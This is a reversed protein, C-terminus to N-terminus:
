ERVDPDTALIRTVAARLAPIDREVTAWVVDLDVDFYRHNVLDRMGAIQKWGVDPHRARFPTSLGKVSEGISGIRYLMFTHILEDGYFVERGRSAYRDIREIADLIERLRARDRNM